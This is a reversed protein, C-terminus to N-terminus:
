VVGVMPTIARLGSARDQPDQRDVPAVDVVGEAAPGFHVQMGDKFAGDGLAPVHIQNTGPIGVRRRTFDDVADVDMPVAV